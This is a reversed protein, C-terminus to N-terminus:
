TAWSGFDKGSPRSWSRDGDERQLSLYGIRVVKEVPQADAGLTGALLTLVLAPVMLHMLQRM